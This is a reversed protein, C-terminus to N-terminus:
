VASRSFDSKSLKELYIEIQDKPIAGIRVIKISDDQSADVITSSLTGGGCEGSVFYDARRSLDQIAPDRPNTFPNEGSINASTGILSGGCAAVLRLCCEHNPIRVALTREKGILEEPFNSGKIPLIITLKGPWFYKALSRSKEGFLVMNDAIALNSILVPMRKTTDRKKIEFCKELGRVSNPSSGLGYVTDTPYIVVAGELVSKSIRFFDSDCNLNITM